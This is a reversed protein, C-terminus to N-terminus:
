NYYLKQKLEELSNFPSSCANKECIYFTNESNVLGYEKVFPCIENIKHDNMNKVIVTINPMFKENLVKKIEELKEDNDIVCVLEKTPYLELLLAMMSFSYATPNERINFATFELQKYSLQQLDARGTLKALKLLLYTCVSNGSPIAGDYLEKPRLILQESNSGYLYFGGNEHDFFDNSLIETLELARDLYNIDFTAEYLEILALSYFAYDDLHGKSSAKGERYSVFLEKKDNTLNHEIFCIAKKAIDLYKEMGLIRYAKIFAVIMLANWSTLVKDDKHLKTRTKRYVYVKQSLELIRENPLNFANNNILNPISKGEFNGKSTIDFYLNFYAGDTEGLIDIIEEPTFLYYKGEVGESDADQACFFGGEDNTLERIVYNMTKEAVTKYLEKGTVQYTELYITSLLANDYLMKEFHPALWKEDTSYRSFGFGIHDFIGGKYMQELTKEVLELSKKDQTVVYYRLLFMLNHPAPFKPARGFGGYICDFTKNFVDNANHALEESIEGKEVANNSTDLIKTIQEGAQLLRARDTKWKETVVELLEILGTINYRATKPIYTGAFFPKQEPSMIITMPWGGSGTFAGCVAMYVSDIDPREEKDVKIAVFNHNLVEAVTTDELSEEEMVHCWHCCSYGISLFIPKDENTAKEFAESGWPYWNVPNYAHQLLYPSTENILQNSKKNEM